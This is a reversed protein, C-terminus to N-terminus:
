RCVIARLSRAPTDRGIFLGTRERSAYVPHAGRKRTSTLSSSAPTPISGVFLRKAPSQRVVQSDRWRILPKCVKAQPWRFQQHQETFQRGFRAKGAAQGGPSAFRDAGSMRPVSHVGLIREASAQIIHSKGIGSWGVMILNNRRRIFDGTALEEIQVRDFAKPNFQWNFRGPDQQGCLSSGPDASSSM